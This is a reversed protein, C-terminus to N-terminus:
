TVANEHSVRPDIWLVMGVDNKGPRGWIEGSAFFLFRLTGRACGDRM